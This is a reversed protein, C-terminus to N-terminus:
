EKSINDILKLVHKRLQKLTSNLEELKKEGLIHFIDQSFRERSDITANKVVELGKRTIIVRRNRRDKGIPLREVLKQKELTDIARTVSYKSRLAKKSIETPLLNGDNLILFHLITFGARSVQQDALVMYLYRNIIDATYLYSLFTDVKMDQAQDRIEKAM